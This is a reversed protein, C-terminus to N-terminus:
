LIVQEDDDDDDRNRALALLQARSNKGIVTEIHRYNAAEAQSDLQKGIRADTSQRISTQEALGWMAIQNAQAVTQMALSSQTMQLQDEIAWARRTREQEFKFQQDARDQARRRDEANNALLISRDEDQMLFERQRNREEIANYIPTPTSITNKWSSSWPPPPTYTTIPTPPSYPDDHLDYNDYNYSSDKSAAAKRTKKPVSMLPLSSVNARKLEANNKRLDALARNLAVVDDTRRLANKRAVQTRKSEAATAVSPVVVVTPRVRPSTRLSQDAESGASGILDQVPVPLAGHRIKWKEYQARFTQM